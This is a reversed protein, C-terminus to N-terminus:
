KSSGAGKLLEKYCNSYAANHFETVARQQGEETQLRPSDYAVVVLAEFSPDGGSGKMLDAMPRGAQRLQMITEGIQARLSCIEQRSEWASKDQAFGPQAMVSLFVAIVVAVTKRMSKNYGEGCGTAM